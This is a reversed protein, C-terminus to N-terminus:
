SEGAGKADVAGLHERVHARYARASTITKASLAFMSRACEQLAVIEQYHLDAVTGLTVSKNHRRHSNCVYAGYFVKGTRLLQLYVAWDGAVKYRVIEDLQGNMVELLPQRRFLVASVNPITNKIGLAADVENAGDVVYSNLWRETSLEDTYSLYDLMVLGGGEDVAESQCYGLVVDPDAYMGELIRELFDPKALDDAEAIWVFDGRAMEVGRQWQRFVSGSNTQNIVIRPEPHLSQRLKQVTEISDDSSGDDLFIIEYVPVTQATISALREPLYRAYNFNPVVVSVRPIQMGGFRLLDMAYARFSFEADVVDVGIKGLRNRETDDALLGTIAEAYKEIDFAPVVVGGIQKVLDSGGGTDAFAVIPTGVSLSELVVSPFPDERSPLAYLDAGAYYDDTQFDMGV